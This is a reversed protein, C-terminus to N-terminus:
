DLDPRIRDYYSSAGAAGRKIYEREIEDGGVWLRCAMKQQPFPNNQAPPDICVIWRVRGALRQMSDKLWNPYDRRQVHLALISM